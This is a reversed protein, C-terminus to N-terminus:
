TYCALACGLRAFIHQLIMRGVCFFWLIRTAPVYNPMLSLTFKIVQSAAFVPNWGEGVLFKKM